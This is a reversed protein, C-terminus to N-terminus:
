VQPEAGCGTPLWSRISASPLKRPDTDPPQTSASTMVSAASTIAVPSGFASSNPTSSLVAQFTPSAQPPEMRMKTSGSACSAVARRIAHQMPEDLSTSARRLTASTVCDQWRRASGRGNALRDQSLIQRRRQFIRKAAVLAHRDRPAVALDEDVHEIRRYAEDDDAGHMHRLREHRHRAREAVVHHDDIRARGEGRFFAEAIRLDHAVPGVLRQGLDAHIAARGQDREGVVRLDVIRRQDGRKGGIGEIDARQPALLGVGLADLAQQLRADGAASMSRM